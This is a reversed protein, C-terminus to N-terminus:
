SAPWSRRGPEGPRQSTQCPPQCLDPQNGAFNEEDDAHRPQVAHKGIRSPNRPQGSRAASATRRAILSAGVTSIIKM